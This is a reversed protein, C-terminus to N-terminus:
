AVGLRDRGRPRHCLGPGPRCALVSRRGARPRPTLPRQSRERRRRPRSARYPARAGLRVVAVAATVSAGSTRFQACHHQELGHQAAFARPRRAPPTRPVSSRRVESPQRPKKRRAGAHSPRASGIGVSEATGCAQAPALAARQVQWRAPAAHVAAALARAALATGTAPATKKARAGARDPGASAIPFCGLHAATARPHQSARRGRSLRHWPRAAAARRTQRPTKLGPWGARRSLNPARAQSSSRFSSSSPMSSSVGQASGPASFGRVRGQTRAGVERDTAEHSRREAACTCSPTRQSRPGAALSASVNVATSGDRPTSSILM